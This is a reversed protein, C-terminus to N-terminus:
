VPSYAVGSPIGYKAAIFVGAFNTIDPVIYDTAGIWEMAEPSNMIGAALVEWDGSITVLTALDDMDFILQGMVAVEEKSWAHGEPKRYPAWEPVKDVAINYDIPIEVVTVDSGCKEVMRKANHEWVIVGVTYGRRAMEAALACSVFGHSPGVPWGFGM